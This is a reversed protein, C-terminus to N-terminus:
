FMPCSEAACPTGELEQGSCELAIFYPTILGGHSRDFWERMADDIEVVPASEIPSQTEADAVVVVVGLEPDDRLADRLRPTATKCGPCQQSHFYLLWRTKETCPNTEAGTVISAALMASEIELESTIPIQSILRRGALSARLGDDAVVAARIRRRTADSGQEALLLLMMARVDASWNAAPGVLEVCMRELEELAASGIAGASKVISSPYAAALLPEVDIAKWASGAEVTTMPDPWSALALRAAQKERGRSSHLAASLTELSEALEEDSCSLGVACRGAFVVRALAATSPNTARVRNPAEFFTTEGADIWIDAAALEELGLM